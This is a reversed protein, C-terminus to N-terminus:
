DEREGRRWPEGPQDREAQEGIELDSVARLTPDVELVHGFPVLNASEFDDDDHEAGCLVQSDGDDDRCDFRAPEKADFIHSGVITRLQELPADPGGEAVLDAHHGTECECAYVARPWARTSATPRRGCWSCCRSTTSETNEIVERLTSQRVHLLPTSQCM